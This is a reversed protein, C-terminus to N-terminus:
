EEELAIEVHILTDYKPSSRGQARPFFRKIKPGRHTVAHIIRSREVDIGKYEANNILNDLLRLIYKAAKVPYRGCYWKWEELGRHHGLKGKYRKFPVLKKKAIVDELFTRAEEAYLNKITKCIERSAKPSIRLDRAVAIATRDPDLGIVSYKHRPSLGM